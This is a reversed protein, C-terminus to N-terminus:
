SRRVFTAANFARQGEAAVMRSLSAIWKARVDEVNGAVAVSSGGRLRVDVLKVDGVAEGPEVGAIEEALVYVAEGGRAFTLVGHIQNGPSKGISM